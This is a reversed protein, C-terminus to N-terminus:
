MTATKQRYTGKEFLSGRIKGKPIEKTDVEVSTNESRLTLIFVIIDIYDLTMRHFFEATTGATYRAM